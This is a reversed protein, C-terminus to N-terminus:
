STLPRHAIHSSLVLRPISPHPTLSPGSQATVPWKQRFLAWSWGGRRVCQDWWNDLLLNYESFHLNRFKRRQIFVKSSSQLTTYYINKPKVYSDSLRVASRIDFTLITIENSDEEQHYIRSCFCDRGMMLGARGARAGAFQYQHQFPRHDFVTVSYLVCFQSEISQSARTM